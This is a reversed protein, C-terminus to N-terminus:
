RSAAKLQDATRQIFAAHHEWSELPTITWKLQGWLPLSEVLETLEDNSGAEVIFAFQRLGAPLGGALIRREQLLQALRQLTPIVQGEILAAVAQPPVQLDVTISDTIVLYQM